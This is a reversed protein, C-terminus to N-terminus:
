EIISATARKNHTKILFHKKEEFIKKSIKAKIGCWIMQNTEYPCNKRRKKWVKEGVKIKGFPISL